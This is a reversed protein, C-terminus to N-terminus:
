RCYERIAVKKEQMETVLGQVITVDELNLGKEVGFPADWVRGPLM